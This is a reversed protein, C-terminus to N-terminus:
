CSMQSVFISLLKLVEDIEKTSNYSHLCIRLREQNQPVTPSLIPKVDFGTEQLKQAITKVKENGPIICCHIASDSEIFNLEQNNSTLQQNFHQINNKLKKVQSEENESLNVLQEFAFKITAVNHLPIATTYIFSRAFNILYQKLDESGLISAGHCGM